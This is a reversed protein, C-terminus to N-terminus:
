SKSSFRERLLVRVATLGDHWTIKKGDSFNRGSYSIPIERIEHGRSILKATIEPELEFRDARLNLSKLIDTRILKYCTEMDTIRRGFLLTTMLSLMRNGLYNALAMGEPNGMFRSGYVAPINENTCVALLKAYDDPDYELDADQIIVYEGKAQALGTRVAAGKGQNTSHSLVTTPSNLKPDLSDIISRTKDTSADDIIVLEKDIDLADIRRLIEEVTRSENFVPIIISLM